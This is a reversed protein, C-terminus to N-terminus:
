KVGLLPPFLTASLRLKDKLFCYEVSSLMNLLFLLIHDVTAKQAPIKRKGPEKLLEFISEGPRYSLFYNSKTFFTQLEVETVFVYAVYCMNNVGEKVTFLRIQPFSHSIAYM